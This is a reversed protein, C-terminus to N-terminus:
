SGERCAELLAQAAARHPESDLVGSRVLEQVCVEGRQLQLLLRAQELRTSPHLGAVGRELELKDVLALAAGPGEAVARARVARHQSGVDHLSLQLWADAAAAHAGQRERLEALPRLFRPDGPRQELAIQLLVDAEADRQLELLLRPHGPDVWRPDQLHAQEYALLAGQLDGLGKLVRALANAHRAPLGETAQVWPLGVPLFRWGRAVLRPPAGRAIAELWGEAAQEPAGVELAHARAVWTRWDAPARSVAREAAALAEPASGNRALLQSALRLAQPDAPHQQVIRAAVSVASAHQGRAELAWARHLEPEPRWPAVRQLREAAGAAGEGRALVLAAAQAQVASRAEWGAALLQAAALLGLWRRLRAGDVSLTPHFVGFVAGIVAAAAMALAPIQLPFEILAHLGLAGLGLGLLGVREPSRWPGRWAWGIALILAVVGLLGVEAIWELPDNHAHDWSVFDRDTRYPEVAHRFTGGGSGALWHRAALAVSARWMPLRGHEILGDGAIVAGGAAIAAVLPVWRPLRGLWAATALGALVAIGLAGASGTWAILGVFGLATGASAIRTSTVEATAAGALLLPLPLLLSAALHNDNLFPAFFRDPPTVWTDIVGFLATAGTAAHLLAVSAVLVGGVILAQEIRHRRWRAVSWAAVAVATGVVLLLHCLEGLTAAPDLSLTSWSREPFAAATGPAVWGLVARPLLLLGAAVAGLLLASGQALRLVSGARSLTSRPLGAAVGLVVALLGHLAARSGHHVGGLSVFALALLAVVGIGLVRM